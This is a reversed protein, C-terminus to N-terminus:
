MACIVLRNEHCVPCARKERHFGDRLALVKSARWVARRGQLGLQTAICADCFPKGQHGQLWEIVRDTISM